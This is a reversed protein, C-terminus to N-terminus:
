FLGLGAGFLSWAEAQGAAGSAALLDAAERWSKRCALMLATNGADNKTNLEAGGDVLIRIAETNGAMAAYMLPTRQAYQRNVDAGNDVLLRMVAQVREDSSASQCCALLPSPDARHASDVAEGQDLLWRCVELHGHRAAGGLLPPACGGHADGRHGQAYLRRVMDLDGRECSKRLVRDPSSTPMPNRKTKTPDYAQSDEKLKEELEKELSREPLAFTLGDPLAVLCLRGNQWGVM